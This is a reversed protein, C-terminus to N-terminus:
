RAPELDLVTPIRDPRQQRTEPGVPSARSPTSGRRRCRALCSPFRSIRGWRRPVVPVAMRGLRPAGEQHRVARPRRPPAPGPPPSRQLRKSGLCPLLRPGSAAFGSPKLRSVLHRTLAWDNRPSVDHMMPLYRSPLAVVQLEVSLRTAVRGPRAISGRPSRPLATPRTPQGRGLRAVGTRRNPSGTGRGRSRRLRPRGRGDQRDGPAAANASAPRIATNWARTKFSVLGPSRASTARRGALRPGGLLASELLGTTCIEGRFAIAEDLLAPEIVAPTRVV